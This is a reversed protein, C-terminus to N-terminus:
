ERIARIIQFVTVLMAPLIDLIGLLVCVLSALSFAELLHGTYDRRPVGVARAAGMIVVMYIGFVFVPYLWCQLQFATCPIVDVSSITVPVGFVVGVDMSFSGPIDIWNFNLPSTLAPQTGYGVSSGNPYGFCGTDGGWEELTMGDQPVAPGGSCTTGWYILSVGFYTAPLTIYNGTTITSGSTQFAGVALYNTSPLGSVEIISMWADPFSGGVITISVEDPGSSPARGNIITASVGYSTYCMSSKYDAAGSGSSLTYNFATSLSDSSTFATPCGSAEFGGTAVFAIIQDGAAVHSAFTATCLTPSCSGVETQVISSAAHVSPLYPIAVFLAILVMSSVPVILNRSFSPKKM